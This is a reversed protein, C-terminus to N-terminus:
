RQFREIKEVLQHILEEQQSIRAELKNIAQQQEKVAQIAVVGFKEYALMYTDQDELYSVFEPFIKEVEQAFIGM